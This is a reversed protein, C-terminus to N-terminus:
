KSNIIQREKLLNLLFEKEQSSLSESNSKSILQQIQQERQLVLIKVLAGELEAKAGSIPTLLERTALIALRAAIKSDRWYELLAGTTMHPKTKILEVLKTIIKCGPAVLANWTEPLQVQLAIDPQQLLLAIALQTPSLHKFKNPNLTPPKQTSAKIEIKGLSEIRTGLLQALKDMMLQQFVGSKTKALLQKALAAVKARGDIHSLNTAQTLRTFFFSDLSMAQDIRQRFALEGEKQVLSDPDENPPLFMFQIEYGDQMIELCIELARWSAKQGAADGDFCFVINHSHRLLRQLHKAGTATGLTAVAETIGHQHLSIVDMYGEVVLVRKLSSQSQIAEYLGYLESGKHFLPTEPSNLYKPLEEGLSRGGFGIIRGRLDRIPFIIRNRFRDYHRGQKGQILMGCELLQQQIKSNIPYQRLLQDWSNGALGLQFKTQIEPTLQRNQLYDKAKASHSLQSQYFRAAKEMLTYLPQQSSNQEHSFGQPLPVGAQQALTEVAEIFELREYNMLFGIASGHAGCGFCHYFQKTQSVTFSPTKESHFPCCATYNAGAKKLPLSLNILEVIDIRALLDNVFDRSIRSM